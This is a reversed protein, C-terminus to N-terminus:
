RMGVSPREIEVPMFNGSPDVASPTYECAKKHSPLCLSSKKKSFSIGIGTIMKM